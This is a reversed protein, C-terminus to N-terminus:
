DDVRDKLKELGTASLHCCPLWSHEAMTPVPLQDMHWSYSSSGSIAVICWVRNVHSNNSCEHYLHFSPHLTVVSTPLWFKPLSNLYVSFSPFFRIWTPSYINNVSSSITRTCGLMTRWRDRLGSNSWSSHRLVLMSNSDPFNPLRLGSINLLNASLICLKLQCIKWRLLATCPHHSTFRHTPYWWRHQNRLGCYRIRAIGKQSGAARIKLWLM